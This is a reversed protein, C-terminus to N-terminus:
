LDFAAKFALGAQDFAARIPVAADSIDTLSGDNMSREVARYFGHLRTLGLNGASGAVFHVITTLDSRANALCIRELDALKLRGESEFLHYLQRMMMMLEEGEEIMLVTVLYERDMQIADRDYTVASITHAVPM